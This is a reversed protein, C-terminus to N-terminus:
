VHRDAVKTAAYAEPKIRAKFGNGNIMGVIENIMLRSPGSQGIDLHIEFEYLRGDLKKRLLAVLRQALELSFFAEKLIRDHRDYTKIDKIKKWFYRGHKGVRHVTIVSVFEASGNFQESDTGVVVAYNFNPEENVFDIVDDVVSEFLIPGKSPSIFYDNKRENDSLGAM